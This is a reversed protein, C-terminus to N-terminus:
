KDDLLLQQVRQQGLAAATGLRTRKTVDREISERLVALALGGDYHEVVVLCAHRKACVNPLHHTCSGRASCTIGYQQNCGGNANHGHEGEFQAEAM